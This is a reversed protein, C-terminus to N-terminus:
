TDVETATDDEYPLREWKPPEGHVAKYEKLKGQCFDLYEDPYNEVEPNCEDKIPPLVIVGYTVGEEPEREATIPVQPAPKAEIFTLKNNDM